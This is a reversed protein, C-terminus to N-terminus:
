RAKGSNHNSIVGNGDGICTYHHESCSVPSHSVLLPPKVKRSEIWASVDKSHKAHLKSRRLSQDLNLCACVIRATQKYVSGTVPFLLGEAGNGNFNHSHEITNLGALRKTQIWSCMVRMRRSGEDTWVLNDRSPPVERAILDFM